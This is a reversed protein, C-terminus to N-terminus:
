YVRRKGPLRAGPASNLINLVDRLTQAIQVNCGISDAIDSPQLDDLFRVGEADLMARPLIVASPPEPLSRLGEIVDQGTLLGSVTVSDGFFRNEVPFVGLSLGTDASLDAAIRTMLPGILTGCILVPVGSEAKSLRSHYDSFPHGTTRRSRQLRKRLAMAEDLLTRTLGIGNQYQPYDDYVDDEPIASGSLLYFEDALYVFSIGFRQRYDEQLMTVDNVVKLAEQRDFRRVEPNTNFRTLGVPVVGVSRVGPYLEALEFLSNHLHTGDNIGPCLVVQAHIETKLTILRRLQDLIDPAKKNGLLRRRLSLDTTHVSVYLPSLRQEELRTWDAPSLNTLTIFNNFLFGYRYDDDKVYLPERLKTPLGDVFCFLCKNACRRIGNFTPETFEIGLPEDAFSIDSLSLTKGQRDIDINLTSESSYFQFDVVDRIQRGNIALVCDGERLGIRQGRSNRTVKCIVGSINTGM